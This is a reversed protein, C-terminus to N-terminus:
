KWPESRYIFVPLFINVINQCLFVITASKTLSNAGNAFTVAPTPNAIFDASNSYYLYSSVMGLTFITMNGWFVLHNELAMFNINTLYKTMTESARSVGFLLTIFLSNVFSSYIYEMSSLTSGDKTLIIAQIMYMLSVMGFYQAIDIM